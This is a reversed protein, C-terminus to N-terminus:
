QGTTQRTCASQHRRRLVRMELLPLALGPRRMRASRFRSALTRGPLICHTHRYQIQCTEPCQRDHRRVRLLTIRLIRLCQPTLNGGHALRQFAHLLPQIPQLLPIMRRHLRLRLCLRLGLTIKRGVAAVVPHDMVWTGPTAWGTNGCRSETASGDVAADRGSLAAPGVSGSRFPNKGNGASIRHDADAAIGLQIGDRIGACGTVLVLENRRRHRDTAVVTVHGVEVDVGLLGAETELRPARGRPM